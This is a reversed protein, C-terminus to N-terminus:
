NGRIRRLFSRFSQRNWGAFRGRQVILDNAGPRDLFYYFTFRAATDQWGAVQGFRLVNFVLTDHWKELTYFGGSFTLLDNVEEKNAAQKLLSDNRPFYHLDMNRQRDFVSRYGIFYGNTDKAVVYWLWVNFPSPTVIYSGASLAIGREKLNRRVSQDVSVKNFIAYVLYTASFGLGIIWASRRKRSNDKRHILLLVFGIFPWISFLPDAVYLVDFSIRAHSFPEFWGTGYANFTDIFIHAFINVSFLLLWRLRTFPRKPYIKEAIMALIITTIVGFLISHTFGRHALLGETTGLWTQTIFDIDPISHALAGLVMARRGLARGGIAEGICAGTVIHTLTDL